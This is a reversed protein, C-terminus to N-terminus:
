KRPKGVIFHTSIKPCYSSNDLSVRVPNGAEIARVIAANLAEKADRIDCILKSLVPDATM